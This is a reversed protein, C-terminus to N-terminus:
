ILESLELESDDLEGGDLKDEDFELGRNAVYLLDGVGTLNFLKSSIITLHFTDITSGFFKM